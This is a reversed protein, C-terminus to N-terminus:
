PHYAQVDEIVHFDVEQHSEFYDTWKYLNSTYSSIIVQLQCKKSETLAKAMELSYVPGAGTTGISVLSIRKM